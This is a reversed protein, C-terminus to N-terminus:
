EFNIGKFQDEIDLASEQEIEVRDDSKSASLILKNVYKRVSEPKGRSVM